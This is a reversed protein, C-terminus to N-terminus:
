KNMKSPHNKLYSTLPLVAATKNPTAELIQEFCYTADIHHMWVIINLCGPQFFDQKVKNSPDFSWKILLRDIATWVKM